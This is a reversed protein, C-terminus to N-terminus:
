TRAPELVKLLPADKRLAFNESTCGICPSGARTCTNTGSNWQRVTCDALTRIGLCGLKHLCGEDGFKEAFHDNDYDHSRHCQAHLTRDFFALPRRRHDLPPLGLKLLHALTGIVWDPHAPCGPINVLPVRIRRGRMAEEVTVAGTPNGEAAPVGGFAACTGVALIARANACARLFLAGIEQGGMTCASPMGAPIAGEVVLIYKERSKSVMAEVSEMAVRGTAASLTSHFGLSMYRTVIEAPGPSDSNLLSVTCGSCSLGQLWLVPAAGTAIEQAAQALRPVAELGLGMMGALLSGAKLFERRTPPTRTTM